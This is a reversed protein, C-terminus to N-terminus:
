SPQSSPESMPIATSNSLFKPLKYAGFSVGSLNLSKAFGASFLKFKGNLDTALPRFM